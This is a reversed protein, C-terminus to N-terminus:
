INLNSFDYELPRYSGTPTLILRGEKVENRFYFLDEEIVDSSIQDTSPDDNIEIYMRRSVIVGEETNM